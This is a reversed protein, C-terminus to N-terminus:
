LRRACISCRMAWSVSSSLVPSAAAEVHPREGPERMRARDEEQECCERRALRGPGFKRDQGTGLVLHEFREHLFEARVRWALHVIFYRPESSMASVNFGSAAGSNSATQGAEESHISMYSVARRTFDMADYRAGSKKAEQM